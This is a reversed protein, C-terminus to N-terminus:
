KIELFTKILFDCYPKDKCIDTQTIEVIYASIEKKSMCLIEEKSAKNMNQFIM